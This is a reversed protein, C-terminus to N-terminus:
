SGGGGGFHHDLHDIHEIRADPEHDGDQPEFQEYSVHQTIYIASMGIGKAGQVDALWNDGIYVCEEADLQLGELMIEYPRRHPKVFGVEGSIVIVEFFEALGLKALGDRISRGCPYNSLLALRYHESLRRLLALVGEAVEMGDLFARYRAEALEAVHHDEPEVEYIERILETGCHTLDNERYGNYYPAVIQRDRVKKLREDDCHGFIEVLTRRLEEYQHAVQRPGFEILTNGLDFCLAKTKRKEIGM